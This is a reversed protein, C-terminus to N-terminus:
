AAVGNCDRTRNHLSQYVGLYQQIMRDSQYRQAHAIAARALSERREFDCILSNVECIWQEHDRPEIFVAAGDWLERLSSIDSLVLCCGANAAELVALGFPEYLAPHLFVSAQRYHTLLEDYSLVGLLCLNSVPELSSEAGATSGALCLQWELEPAVATLLRLNKAPDWLRGAALAFPQKAVSYSVPSPSANYIVRIKDPAIQYESAIANAMYWSPATVSDCKQLGRAVRGKYELWERGPSDGHVARWWSYVCSHAVIVTPADWALAGHSYGNLHIIDAGSSKQLELLWDGARDVDRWADPMWELAFDTELLHLRSIARAQARQEDSPKPGFTVLLIETGHQALASALHLSYQWVGGVADTTMLVLRPAAAPEAPEVSM